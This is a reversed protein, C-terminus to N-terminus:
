VDYKIDRTCKKLNIQFQKEAPFFITHEAIIKKM